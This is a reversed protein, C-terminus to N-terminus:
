SSAKDSEVTDGGVVSNSYGRGVPPKPKAPKAPAPPNFPLAGGGADARGAGPPTDFVNESIWADARVAQERLPMRDVLFDRGQELADWGQALKPPTALPRNEFPRATVGVVRVGIPAFFFLLAITAIVTRASM